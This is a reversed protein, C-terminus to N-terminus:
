GDGADTDSGGDGSDRSDPPIFARQAWDPLNRYYINGPDPADAPSVTDGPPSIPPVDDGATQASAATAMGLLAAAAAASLITKMM